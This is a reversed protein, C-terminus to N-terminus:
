PRLKRSVADQDVLHRRDVGRMPFKCLAGASFCRAEGAGYTKEQDGFASDFCPPLFIPLARSRHHLRKCLKGEVAPDPM